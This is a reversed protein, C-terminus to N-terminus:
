ETLSLYQPTKLLKRHINAGQVGFFLAFYTMVKGYGKKDKRQIRREESSKHIFLIICLLYRACHYWQRGCLPHHSYTSFYKELFVGLSLGKLEYDSLYSHIGYKYKM